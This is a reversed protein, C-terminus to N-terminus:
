PAFEQTVSAISADATVDQFFNITTGDTTIVVGDEEGDLQSILPNDQSQDATAMMATIDDITHQANYNWGDPLDVAFGVIVEDSSVTDPTHGPTFISVTSWIVLKCSVTLQKCVKCVEFWKGTSRSPRLSFLLVSLLRQLGPTPFGSWLRFICLEQHQM